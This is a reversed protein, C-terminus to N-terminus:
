LHWTRPLNPRQDNPYMGPSLFPNPHRKTPMMKGRSKKQDTKWHRVLRLEHIESMTLALEKYDLNSPPEIPTKPDPSSMSCGRKNSFAVFCITVLSFLLHASFSIQYRWSHRADIAELVGKM